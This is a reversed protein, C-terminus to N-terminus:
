GGMPVPFNVKQAGQWGKVWVLLFWFFFLMKFLVKSTSDGHCSSLM